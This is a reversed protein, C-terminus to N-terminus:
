KSEKAMRRLETEAYGKAPDHFEDFELIDAAEELVKRRVEVDHESLATSPSIAILEKALDEDIGFYTLVGRLAHRMREVLADREVLQQRAEALETELRRAFEARVWEDEDLTRSYLAEFGRIYNKDTRPTNSM